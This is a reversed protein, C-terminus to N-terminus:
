GASLIVSRWIEAFTWSKKIWAYDEFKLMFIFLTTDDRKPTHRETKKDM